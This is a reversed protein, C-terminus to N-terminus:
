FWVRDELKVSCGAFLRILEANAAYQATAGWNMMEEFNYFQELVNTSGYVKLNEKMIARNIRGTGPSSEYWVEYVLGDSSNRIKTIPEDKVALYIAGQYSNYFKNTISLHGHELGYKFWQLPLMYLGENSSHLTYNKEDLQFAM